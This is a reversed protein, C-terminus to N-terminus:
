DGPLTESLTDTQTYVSQGIKILEQTRKTILDYDRKPLNTISRYTEPNYRGLTLIESSGIRSLREIHSLRSTLEDNKSLLDIKEEGYYKRIERMIKLERKYRKFLFSLIYVFKYRSIFKKLKQRDYQIGEWKIYTLEYISEKNNFEM